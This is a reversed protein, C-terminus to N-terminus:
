IGLEKKALATLFAMLVEFSAGGARNMLKKAQEWRSPERASDLFEHGKWTLRIIKAEPSPSGMSTVNVAKVLGAENMLFAHYDVQEQTYDHIQLQDRAFGSPLSEAAMLLERVLDMDRKM